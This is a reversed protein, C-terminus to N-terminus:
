EMIPVTSNKSRKKIRDIREEEKATDLLNKIDRYYKLSNEYDQYEQQSLKSIEVTEFLQLFIIEKLKKPVRDLKYLNKICFAM